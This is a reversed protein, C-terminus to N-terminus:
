LVFSVASGIRMVSHLSEDPVCNSGASRLPTWQEAKM